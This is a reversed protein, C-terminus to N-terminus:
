LVLVLTASPKMVVADAAPTGGMSLEPVVSGDLGTVSLWLRDSREGHILWAESRVDVTGAGTEVKGTGTMRAYRDAGDRWVGGQDVAVGYLRAPDTGKRDVVLGGISGRNGAFLNFAVTVKDTTGPWSFAALLAIM